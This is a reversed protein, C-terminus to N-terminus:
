GRIARRPEHLTDAIGGRPRAWERDIGSGRVYPEIRGTGPGPSSLPLLLNLSLPAGGTGQGRWGPEFGPQGAPWLPSVSVSM